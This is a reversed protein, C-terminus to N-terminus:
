LVPPPKVPPLPSVGGTDGPGELRFEGSRSLPLLTNLILALLAPLLDLGPELATLGAPPPLTAPFPPSSEVVVVAGDAANTGGFLRPLLALLVLAGECGLIPLACFSFKLTPLLPLKTLSESCAVEVGEVGEPPPSNVSEFECSSSGGGASRLPNNVTVRLLGVLTFSIETLNFPLAFVSQGSPLLLGKIFAIFTSM